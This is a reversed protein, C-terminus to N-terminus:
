EQVGCFRMAALALGQAAAILQSVPVFEDVAHALRVDGPGYVVAPIGASRSFTAGDHWFDAGFVGAPQGLDHNVGTLADVVAHNPPCEAPPVDISWHVTPPHAALWPDAAAYRLVWDTFTAEVLSGYGDGDAQGPLYSLHCAVAVSDAYSVAM